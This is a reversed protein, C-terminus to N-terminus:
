RQITITSLRFLDNLPNVYCKASRGPYMRFHKIGYQTMVAHLHNEHIKVARNISVFAILHDFQVAILHIFICLLGYSQVALFHFIIFNM